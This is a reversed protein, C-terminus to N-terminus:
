TVNNMFNYKLEYYNILGCPKTAKEPSKRPLVPVSANDDSVADRRIFCSSFIEITYAVLVIGFHKM